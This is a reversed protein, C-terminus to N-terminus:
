AARDIPTTRTPLRKPRKQKMRESPKLYRTYTSVRRGYIGGYDRVKVNEVFRPENERFDGKLRKAIWPVSRGTWEYVYADYFEDYRKKLVANNTLRRLSRSLRPKPFNTRTLLMSWTAMHRPLRELVKLIENDTEIAQIMGKRSIPM